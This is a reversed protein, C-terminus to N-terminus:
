ALVMLDYERQREAIPRSNWELVEKKTWLGRHKSVGAQMGFDPLFIRNYTYTSGKALGYMEEIDRVRMPKSLDMSIVATLANVDSRLGEVTRQLQELKLGSEITMNDM